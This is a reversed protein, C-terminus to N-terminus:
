GGSPPIKAPSGATSPANNQRPLWPVRGEGRAATRGRLAPRRAPWPAPARGTVPANPSFRVGRQAPCGCEGEACTPRVACQPRYKGKRACFPVPKGAGREGKRPPRVAPYAAFSVAVCLPACARKRHKGRSPASPRPAAREGKGERAACCPRLDFVTHARTLRPSVGGERMGFGRPTRNKNSLRLHAKREALDRSKSFSASVSQARKSTNSVRKFARMESTERTRSTKPM